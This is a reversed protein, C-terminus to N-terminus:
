EDPVVEDGGKRIAQAIKEPNTKSPDYEVIARQPTERDLRIDLVGPDKSAAAEVRGFCGPCSMTPVLYGTTARKPDAKNAATTEGAVTSAKQTTTTTSNPTSGNADEAKRPPDKAPEPASGSAGGGCATLLLALGVFLAALGARRSLRRGATRAHTTAPSGPMKVELREDHAREPTPRNKMEGPGTLSARVM